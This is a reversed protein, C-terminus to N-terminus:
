RSIQTQPIPIQWSRKTSTQEIAIQNATISVVRHDQMFVSGQRVLTTGAPTLVFVGPASGDNWTGIVQVPPPSPPAPAAAVSSLPETVIQLTAVKVPSLPPPPPPPEPPPAVRAARIPFADGVIDIPVAPLTPEAAPVPASGALRASPVTRQVAVVPAAADDNTRQPPLWWRLIALGLALVTLWLLRESKM